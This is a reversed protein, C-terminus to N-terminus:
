RQAVERITGPEGISDFITQVMESRVKQLHTVGALLGGKYEGNNSNMRLYDLETLSDLVQAGGPMTRIARNLLRRLSLRPNYPVGYHEAIRRSVERTEM